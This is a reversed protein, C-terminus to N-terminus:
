LVEKVTVVEDDKLIIPFSMLGANRAKNIYEDQESESLNELILYEYEIKNKDLIKKTMKCASCNNKGIVKIM